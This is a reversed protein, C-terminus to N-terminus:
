TTLQSSKRGVILKKRQVTWREAREDGKKASKLIARMGANFFCLRRHTGIRLLEAVEPLTGRVVTGSNIKM